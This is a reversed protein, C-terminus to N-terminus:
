ILETGYSNVKVTSDEMEEEIAEWQSRTLWNWMTMMYGLSGERMRKSIEFNLCKILHEAMATSKGCKTDFFHRCKNVNARLYSKTGDKRMVYVPYMDYFLDFYSKEPQIAKLLKETPQYITNGDREISTLLEQEVLSSIEDGSILSLLKRVDQYKPQNKDLVLSLFVLQNISIGPFEDLIKTNVEIIM